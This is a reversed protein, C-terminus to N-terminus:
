LKLSSSFGSSSQVSVTDTCREEDLQSFVVIVVGMITAASLSKKNTGETLELSPFLLKFPYVLLDGDCSQDKACNRKIEPPVDSRKM